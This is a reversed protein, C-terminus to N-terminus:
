AVKRTLRLRWDDPGRRLYEVTFTDPVCQRRRALRGLPHQPALLVLGTGPAIGDLARRHGHAPHPAPCSGSTPTVDARSDAALPAIAQDTM